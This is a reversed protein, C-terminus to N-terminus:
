AKAAIREISNSFPLIWRTAKWEWEKLVPLEVVINVVLFEEGDKFSEADPAVIQVTGSKWYLNNSIVLVQFVKRSGLDKVTALGEPSLVKTLEVEDDV